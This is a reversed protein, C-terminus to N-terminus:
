QFQGRDSGETRDRAVFKEVLDGHRGYGVSAGFHFGSLDYNAIPPANRPM